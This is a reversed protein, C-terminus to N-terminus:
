ARRLEIGVAGIPLGWKSVRAQAQLHGGDDLRMTEFFALGVGALRMVYRLQVVDGETWIRAPGVLGDRTGRYTGAGTRELRWVAHERAGDDYLFDEDLILTRGDMHCWIEVGFGRRAGTWANTFAGRGHVRGAFFAELVLTRSKTAVDM